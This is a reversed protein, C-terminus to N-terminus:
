FELLCFRDSLFGSYSAELALRPLRKVRSLTV